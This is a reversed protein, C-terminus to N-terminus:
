KLTADTSLGRHREGTASSFALFGPDPSLEKPRKVWMECPELTADRQDPVRTHYELASPFLSQVGTLGEAM